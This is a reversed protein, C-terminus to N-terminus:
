PLSSKSLNSRKAKLYLVPEFELNHSIRLHLHLLRTWDYLFVSGVRFQCLNWLHCGLLWLKIVYDGWKHQSLLRSHNSFKSCMTWDRNFMHGKLTWGGIGVDSLYLHKHGKLTRSAWGPGWSTMHLINRSFLTLLSGTIHMIWTLAFMYTSIITSFSSRM